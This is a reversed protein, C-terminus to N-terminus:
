LRIKIQILSTKIRLIMDHLETIKKEMVALSNSDKYGTIASAKESMTDLKAVVNELTGVFNNINSLYEPTLSAASRSFDCLGKIKKDISDIRNPVNKSIASTMKILNLSMSDAGTMIEKLQSAISPNAPTGILMKASVAKLSDVIGRIKWAIGIFESLGTNFNGKLTDTVPIIPAEIDGLDISLMRDGMYGVDNNDIRYGYHFEIPKHTKIFVLINQKRWKIDSIKGASIGKITVPDDIKLNGTSNFAIIRVPEPNKTCYLVYVALTLVSVFFFLLIAYGLRRDAKKQSIIENQEEMIFLYTM